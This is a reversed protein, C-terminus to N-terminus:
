DISPRDAWATEDEEYEEEERKHENVFSVLREIESPDVKMVEGSNMSYFSVLDYFYQNVERFDAEYWSNERVDERTIKFEYEEFKTGKIRQGCHNCEVEAIEHKIVISDGM